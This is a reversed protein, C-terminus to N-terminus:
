RLVLIPCALGSLGVGQSSCALADARSEENKSFNIWLLAQTARSNPCGLSCHIGLRHSFPYPLKDCANPLERIIHHTKIQQKSANMEVRVGHVGSGDEGEVGSQKQSCNLLGHCPFHSCWSQQHFRSRSGESPHQWLPSHRQM